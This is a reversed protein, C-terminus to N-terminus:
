LVLAINLGARVWGYRVENVAELAKRGQAMVPVTFVPAPPTDVRFTKVPASYMEETM